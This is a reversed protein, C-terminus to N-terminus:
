IPMQANVSYQRVQKAIGGDSWDFQDLFIAQCFLSINEPSSAAQAPYHQALLISPGVGYVFKSRDRSKANVNYKGKPSAKSDPNVGIKDNVPSSLLLESVRKDSKCSGDSDVLHILEHMLVSSYSRAANLKMGETIYGHQVAAIVSVLKTQYAHPCFIIAKWDPVTVAEVKNTCVKLGDPRCGLARPPYTKWDERAAPTIFAGYKKVESLITTVEFIRSFNSCRVKVLTM